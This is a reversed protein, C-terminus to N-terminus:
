FVIYVYTMTVYNTTSKGSSDFIVDSPQKIFFPGRPVNLTDDVNYEYQYFYNEVAFDQESVSMECIYPLRKNETVKEFKWKKLQVFYRFINVIM